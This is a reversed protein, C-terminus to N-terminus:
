AGSSPNRKPGKIAAAFDALASTALIAAAGYVALLVLANLLAAQAALGFAWCVLWALAVLLFAPTVVFRTVVWISAIPSGELVTLSAARAVRLLVALLAAILPGILVWQNFDVREVRAGLFIALAM